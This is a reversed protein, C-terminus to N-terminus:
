YWGHANHHALANQWTGYRDKVYNNAWRSQAGLDGLPPCPHSSPNCQFAGRMGNPSVANPNGSSERRMIERKAASWTAPSSYSYPM